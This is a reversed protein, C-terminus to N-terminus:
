DFIPKVQLSKSVTEDDYTITIKRYETKTVKLFTGNIRAKQGAKVTLTTRKASVNAGSISVTIKTDQKGTNTFTVVFPQEDNQNARNATTAAAVTISGVGGLADFEGSYIVLGNCTVEVNHRSSPLVYQATRKTTGDGRLTFQSNHDEGFCRVTIDDDKFEPPLTVVAAVGEKGKEAVAVSGRELSCTVDGDILKLIGTAGSSVTAVAYGDIFPHADEFQAALIRRSGKIYGYKGNDQFTTPGDIVIPEQYGEPQKEDSLRYKWDFRLNPKVDLQVLQGNTGITAFAGSKTKVVAEDNYFSTGFTIKGISKDLSIEVGNRDVYTVPDKSNLPDGSSSGNKSPKGLGVLAYGQCFPHVASYKCDVALGGEKDLFGYAGKKNFVPFMGESFFPYDGIYYEGPPVLLDGDESIIGVLRYNKSKDAKMAVALGESFITIKDVEEPEIVVKGDRTVLGVGKVTTVKYLKETVQELSEYEPPVSWKVSQARLGLACLTLCIFTLIRKIGIM